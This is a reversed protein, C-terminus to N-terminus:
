TDARGPLGALGTNLAWTAVQVRSDCGLKNFIRTIYTEVTKLGVTMAQAIERNSKGQAILVAVERERASLGGLQRTDTEDQAPADDETVPTPAALADAVAQELALERGAAWEAAFGTEGLAARSATLSRQYEDRELPSLPIELSQRLSDAAGWLRVAKAPHGQAATLGAFGELCEVTHEKDDLRRSMMLSQTLYAAAQALHGLHRAVVGLWVLQISTAWTDDLEQALALAAEYQRAAHGYDEQHRAIEGLNHLAYIMVWKNNLQKALALSQELCEAAAAFEQQFMLQVGVHNLALAVGQEDHLDEYLALATKNHALSQGYQAQHWALTGAGLHVEARVAPLASSGAALVEELWHRGETFDGRVEWFRWLAAALRLAAEDNRSGGAWRAAARLNDREAAYGELWALQDSGNLRASAQEAWVVFFACHRANVRELDGALQLKDLAYQRITELLRYRTSDAKQDAVVLSKDVLHALVDMVEGTYVTEDACVAEAATLTCGGAFVALRQLVSRESHSLLNYSWDVTAALTQQRLPATRSGATLLRFRDDLRQAIERVSLARARAAALEIALPMGDLRRCIEAVWGGNDVSLTFAPSATGARAVFLQVAESARYAALAAMGSAPGRWPHHEPLSLPPVICIVEGTVGLPERSTALIHLDPCAQLLTTALQAVGDILHECNDFILLVQRSQLYDVLTSTLPRSPQERLGLSNAAAQVVLSPDAASTFDILWTGDAYQLLLRNATELALRTKGCGGVGTLTVLRHVPLWQLITAVMAERGIFTSLSLPLNHVNGDAM